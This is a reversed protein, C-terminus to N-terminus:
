NQDPVMIYLSHNKCSDSASNCNNRWVMSVAVVGAPVTVWGDNEQQEKYIDPGKTVIITGDKKIIYIDLAYPTKL